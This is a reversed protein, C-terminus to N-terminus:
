IIIHFMVPLSCDEHLFYELTRLGLQFLSVDCRDDRHIIPLWGDKKCLAGLYIM